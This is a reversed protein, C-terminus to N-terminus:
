ITIPHLVLHSIHEHKFNEWHLLLSKHKRSNQFNVQNKQRSWTFTNSRLFRWHTARIFFFCEFFEYRGVLGNWHRSSRIIYFFVLYFNELKRTTMTFWWKTNFTFSSVLPFESVCPYSVLRSACLFIAFQGFWCRCCRHFLLETRCSRPLFRVIEM